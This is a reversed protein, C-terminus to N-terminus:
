NNPANEAIGYALVFLIKVSLLEYNNNGKNIVEAPITQDNNWYFSRKFGDSLQKTM